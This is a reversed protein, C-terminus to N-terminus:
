GHVHLYSQVMEVRLGGLLRGTPKMRPREPQKRAAKGAARGTGVHARYIREDLRKPTDAHEDSITTAITSTM